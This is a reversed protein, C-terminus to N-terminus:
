DPGGRRKSALEDILETVREAISHESVGSLRKSLEARADDLLKGVTDDTHVYGLEEDSPRKYTAAAAEAAARRARERAAQADRLERELDALRAEVDPAVKVRPPKTNRPPLNNVCVGSRRTPRKSRKSANPPSPRATTITPITSSSSTGTPPAFSKTPPTM